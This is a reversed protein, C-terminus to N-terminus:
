FPVQVQCMTVFVFEWLPPPPPPDSGAVWSAHFSEIHNQVLCGTAEFCGRPQPPAGAGGDESM